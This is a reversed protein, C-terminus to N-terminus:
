RGGCSPLIAFYSLLEDFFQKAEPSESIQENGYNFTFDPAGYMSIYNPMVSKDESFMRPLFGVHEKSYVYNFKEGVKRYQGTTADKEYTDGTKETKYSGDENKEIGNPDLYATYNQGYM